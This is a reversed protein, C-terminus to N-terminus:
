VVNDPEDEFATYDYFMYLGGKKWANILRKPARLKVSTVPIETFTRLTLLYGYISFNVEKLSEFGTEEVLTHGDKDEMRLVYREKEDPGYDYITFVFELPDKRWKLNLSKMKTINDMM